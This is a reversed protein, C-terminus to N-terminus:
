CLVGRGRPVSAFRRAYPVIGAPAPPASGNIRIVHCAIDPLFLSSRRWSHRPTSSSSFVQAGAHHRTQQRSLHLRVRSTTQVLPIDAQPARVQCKRPHGNESTHASDCYGSQQHVPSNKCITCGDSIRYRIRNASSCPLGTVAFFANFSSPQGSSDNTVTSNRSSPSWVRSTM